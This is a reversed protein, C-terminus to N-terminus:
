REKCKKTFNNQPVKIQFNQTLQRHSKVIKPQHTNGASEILQDFSVKRLIRHKDSEKIKTQNHV